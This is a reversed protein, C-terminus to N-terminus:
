ASTKSTPLWRDRIKTGLVFQLFCVLFVDAFFSFFRFETQFTCLLTLASNARTKVMDGDNLLTDVVHCVPAQNKLMTFAEMKSQLLM